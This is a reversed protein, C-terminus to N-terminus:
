LSSEIDTESIVEDFENLQIERLFLQFFIKEEKLKLDIKNFCKKGNDINDSISLILDNGYNLDRVVLYLTRTTM